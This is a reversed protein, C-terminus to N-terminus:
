ARSYRGSLVGRRRAPRETFNSLSAVGSVNPRDGSPVRIVNDALWRMNLKILAVFMACRSAARARGAGTPGSITMAKHQPSGILEVGGRTRKAGARGAPQVDATCAGRQEIPEERAMVAARHDQADLVGIELREVRAASVANSASRRQSLSSQSSPRVTAPRMRGVPLAVPQLDVGALRLDEHRVSQREDTETVVFIQIALALCLQGRAELRAIVASAAVQRWDFDHLPAVTTLRM